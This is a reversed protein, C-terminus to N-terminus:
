DGPIAGLARVVSVYVSEPGLGERQLMAGLARALVADPILGALEAVERAVGADALAALPEAASADGRKVLALLSPLAARERRGALARGAAGRVEPDLDGLAALAAARARKDELATLAVVARARLEPARHRSYGLLVDLGARARLPALAELAAAAVDPALGLALGDLLPEARRTRGLEVAAARAIAPDPSALEGALDRAQVSTWACVAVAVVWVRM